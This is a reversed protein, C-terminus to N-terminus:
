DPKRALRARIEEALARHEACGVVDLPPPPQSTEAARLQERLRAIRTRSASWQAPDFRGGVVSRAVAEIAQPVAASDHCLMAIDAGAELTKVVSEGPGYRRAIAGMGLDDALIVGDFSLQRRLLEQLALPSISAPRDPDLQPLLIHATMITPVSAAIAAAFPVLEQEALHESTGDFRPLDIHPDVAADGHGPFHKACALIGVAALGRLFAVGMRAVKRPDAGFSRGSTVPSAPNTALDLMPAFDLNVGVARLERALARAVQEVLTVDDLAGLEAPSPWATFPPQLSFRTGGEQDIGILVPQKAARRIADTLARLNGLDQYNRAYIAVGALGSALLASMEGPLETGEFGLFLRELVERELTESPASADPHL